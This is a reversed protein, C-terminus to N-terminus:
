QSMLVRNHARRSDAIHSITRLCFGPPGILNPSWRVTISHILHPPISSRPSVTNYRPHHKRAQLIGQTDSHQSKGDSTIEGRCRALVQGPEELILDSEFIVLVSRVAMTM